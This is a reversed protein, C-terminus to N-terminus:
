FQQGISFHFEGSKGLKSSIDDFPIGYDLGLLGFMPLYIRLGIGASRKMDFPDFDVPRYWSNGGEVFALGYVTASPNLSVPYRMEFTFKDFVTGGASPSLSNNPYGRLGIIERGDLAFGSLGDGGLYFREFPAQGLAGSYLGLIGFNAKVNLVLNGVLKTVWSSTFKWKHFEIWKYKEQASLTSYDKDSFLSYPPTFQASISFQSGSRPYIPQDISSRTISTRFNLNNAYGNSFLFSTAYNDLNYNQFSVENYISFYDDPWTLRKGLGLSAGSIVISQRSADGRSVGNSQISHFVSVSLSNPKKGGLWPETFSANYSQYFKGNTQGRLSLRQGDGSPLPTWAGRNFFNRASFNNFSVGLTGVLQGAGWGGSVEIQDSAKEEVEYEIDVTGDAPNPKPTVNLKEANFFGLQALERQTRIIDSRNFLQGPRTRIERMVVRDNTKTNGKVTVKNIRAQKGEYIRMEVDISDGAVQIEVPTVQFFLYGDDMYLSTIDKSSPNLYLNAELLTQSYLDGKKIGLIADLEEDTYKTNGLWTIERFYYKMGEDIKIDINITKSNHSYVTDSVIMADRYGKGQYKSLVKKKDKEYNDELFKSATFVRYFLKQKTDKMAGRLKKDSFVTNGEFNIRHIKIKKQKDVVVRLIKSNIGTSDVEEEIKVSANLYGKDRYYTEVKDITTVILNETIVKGRSLNIIERIKDAESKSAGSFAFKSLRPRELLQLDLFIINGQIKSAIISVDAFLGQKWLNDIAQSVKEGPIKITQGVKLGSVTILVQEDLTQTGTVTIGGIEYEKPSSYDFQDESGVSIQAWSTNLGFCILAFVSAIKKMM